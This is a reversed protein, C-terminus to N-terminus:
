TASGEMEFRYGIDRITRIFTPRHPDTEIKSRLTAVCRDISRPTVIVSRGWVADLIGDRALACGPRTAFHELLRFEKATLEVHVGGRRLKRARLDLECDGFVIKQEHTRRKRRLFARVRAV